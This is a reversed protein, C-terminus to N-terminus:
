SKKKKRWFTSGKEAGPVHSDYGPNSPRHITEEEEKIVEDIVEETAQFPKGTIPKSEFDLGPQRVFSSNKKM